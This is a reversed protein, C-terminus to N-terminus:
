KGNIAWISKLHYLQPVMKKSISLFHVDITINRVVFGNTKWKNEWGNIQFYITPCFKIIDNNKTSSLYNYMFMSTRKLLVMKVANYAMDVCGSGPIFSFNSLILCILFIHWPALLITQVYFFLSVNVIHEHTIHFIFKFPFCIYSLISQIWSHSSLSVNVSTKCNIFFKLLEVRRSPTSLTGAVVYSHCLQWISALVFCCGM